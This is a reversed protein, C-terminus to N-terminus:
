FQNKMSSLSTVSTERPIWYSDANEDWDIHLLDKKLIRLALGTPLVTLYFILGMVVPNVIKHLLLGFATWAKNLPTLVAPRFLATLLFGLGLTLAWIRFAGDHFIPWIAILGFVSFFVIGFCRNSSRKVTHRRRLDEHIHVM